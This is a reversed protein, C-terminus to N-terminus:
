YNSLESKLVVRREQVQPDRRRPSLQSEGKSRAEKRRRLKRWSKKGL